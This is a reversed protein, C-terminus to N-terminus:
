VGVGFLDFVVFFDVFVIGFVRVCLFLLDPVARNILRIRFPEWNLRWNLVGAMKWSFCLCQELVWFNLWDAPIEVGRFKWL